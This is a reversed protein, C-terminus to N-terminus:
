ASDGNRRKIIMRGLEVATIPTVGFRLAEARKSQSIDFHEQKTGPKQIWEPRLGLKTAMACLEETTDAVMHAMLMRGFPNRANDVYVTM